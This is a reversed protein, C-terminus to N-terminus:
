NDINTWDNPVLEYGVIEFDDSTLKVIAKCDFSAWSGPYELAEIAANREDLGDAILGSVNKQYDRKHIITVEDNVSIYGGTGDECNALLPLPLFAILAVISFYKILNNKM